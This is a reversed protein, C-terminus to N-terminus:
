AVFRQWMQLSGTKSGLLFIGDHGATMVADISTDLYAQFQVKFAFDPLTITSVQGHSHGCILRPGSELGAIRTIPGGQLNQMESKMNGEGDFVRLGGDAYAAVIHGQFELFSTVTKAPPLLKTVKLSTLNCMAIGSMGGVWINDGLVHLCNIAGPMDGITHTCNFVKSAPDMQWLRVERDASGTILVGQHQKIDTVRKTHGRLVSNAGDQSFAKVEGNWFGCFIWGSACLMSFCAEQLPVELDPTLQFRGAADKNPKWRKLMKDQSATYIGQETMAIAVIPGDHAKVECHRAVSDADVKDTTQQEVRAHAFSCSAGRRCDGNRAFDHCIRSGGGGGLDGGKGRMGPPRYVNDGKGRGKSRGAIGGRRSKFLTDHKVVHRVGGGSAGRDDHGGFGKGGKGGKGRGGRGGRGGM